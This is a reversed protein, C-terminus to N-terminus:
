EKDGWQLFILDRPTCTGVADLRARWAEITAVIEEPSRPVRARIAQKRDRQRHTLQGTKKKLELPLFHWPHKPDIIWCDQWGKMQEAADRLDEAEDPGGPKRMPNFCIELIIAPIHFCELGNNACYQETFDQLYEESPGPALTAFRGTGGLQELRKAVAGRRPKERKPIAMDAWDSRARGQKIPGNM